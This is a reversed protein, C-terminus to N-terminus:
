IYVRSDIVSGLPLHTIKGGFGSRVKPTAMPDVSRVVMGRAM